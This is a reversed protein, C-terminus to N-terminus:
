KTDFGIIKSIKLATQVAYRDEEEDLNIHIIEQIRTLRYLITNYHTFLMESMKKLNGNCIFYVELTKILETDKRADYAMLPELIEKLFVENEYRVATNSLIKYVGMEDYFVVDQNLYHESAELAKGADLLSKHVQTLGKYIRGVGMRIHHKKMKTKLIDAIYKVYRKVITPGEGEKLMVLIYITDSKNLIMYARGMDKCILEAMYAAKLAKEAEDVNNKTQVTITLMVYYAHESFRFNGAREVAKHRRQEDFSILDDFFEVKYKNEVEQVSIKKLFELAIINSASELALKDYNSIAQHKGYTVIHGYIANKVFIPIILRELEGDKFPITDWILKSHKGDLQIGEINEYLTAYDDAFAQKIFYTDEFYYDRIFIPSTITKHISKLIDDLNGGSVVVNMTDKHLTEVRHLVNTQKMFMLNYVVSFIDTFSVEYNLDVLPLHMAECASLVEPEIHEIYPSVKVFIASVKKDCIARLFDIQEQVTLKQFMQGTTLVIQGDQEIWNIIEWDLMVNVSTVQQSDTDLKTLLKSSQFVDLALVETLSVNSENKM